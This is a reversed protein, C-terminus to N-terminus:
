PECIPNVHGQELALTLMCGRGVLCASSVHQPLLVAILTIMRQVHKIYKTSPRVSAFLLGVVKAAAISILLCM